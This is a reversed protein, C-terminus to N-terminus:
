FSFSAGLFVLGNVMGGPSVAPNGTIASVAKDAATTKLTKYIPIPIFTFLTTKRFSYSLGPEVSVGYGARRIGHSAGIADYVPVGEFRIGAWASFARMTFNAGGRLLFADPVSNVDAGADVVGPAAQRGLLNSTGNQDRPNFLYFGNGFLTFMKSLTYFGSLEVTFGTGGDGLQLTPNVPASVMGTSRYFYDQYKYDGTPLKIGLGVQINGRHPQSVDLLWKYATVRIDSLGFSSTKHKEKTAPDHEQWTRRMANMFPVDVVVSWGNEYVRMLALDVIVTRSFVKDEPAQDVIEEGTYTGYFESYRSNALLMWKVPENGYQPLSFQTFGTLNRIAVCGQSHAYFSFVLLYLLSTTFKKM